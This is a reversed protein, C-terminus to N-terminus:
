RALRKTTWRSTSRCGGGPEEHSLMEVTEVRRNIWAKPNAILPICAFGPRLLPPEHVSANMSRARRQQLPLGEPPDRHRCGKSAERRSTGHRRTAGGGLAGNCRTGTKYPRLYQPARRAVDTMPGSPM